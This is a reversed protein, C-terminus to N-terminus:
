VGLDGREPVALRHASSHRETSVTIRHGLRTAPREILYYSALAFLPMLICIAWVRQFSMFLGQWVYLSYSVIGLWALPGFSLARASISNPQLTATAIIAAISIDELLLYETRQLYICLLLITLAPLAWMKSWRQVRLRIHSDSILLALSSGVLLGDAHLFTPGAPFVPGYKGWFAWRFASCGVAGLLAIWRCRTIGALFLTAPWVLYFQEEVSLSWFHGALGMFGFFNRYFFVCARVEALTTYPRGTVRTLLLLVVLYTWAAPMLRFFRRIYFRRFNIPGESLKSTILFGSLVFFLTVGPYGTSTWPRVYHGLLSDQIHDFLVLAIAIGRLGDLAPIRNM